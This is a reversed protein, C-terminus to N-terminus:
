GVLLSNIDRTILQLFHQLLIFQLICHHQHQGVFLVHAHHAHVLDGLFQSQVGQSSPFPVDLAGAGQGSVAQVFAELPEALGSGVLFLSRM